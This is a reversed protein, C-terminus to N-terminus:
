KVVDGRLYPLVVYQQMARSIWRYRIQVGDESSMGMRKALDDPLRNARVLVGMGYSFVDTDDLLFSAAAWCFMERQLTPPNQIVCKLAERIEQVHRYVKLQQFEPTRHLQSIRALSDDTSKIQAIQAQEDEVWAIEAPRPSQLIASLREVDGLLESAAKTRAARSKANVEGAIISLPEAQASAFAAVLLITLTKSYSPM